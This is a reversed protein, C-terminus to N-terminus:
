CACRRVCVRVCGAVVTRYSSVSDPNFMALCGVDSLHRRGAAAAAAASAAISAADDGASLGELATPPLRWTDARRGESNSGYLEFTLAYPM